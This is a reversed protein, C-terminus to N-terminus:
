GSQYMRASDVVAAIGNKLDPSDEPTQYVPLPTMQYYDWASKQWPAHLLVAEGPVYRDAVLRAALRYNDQSVISSGQAQFVTLLSLAAFAGALVPGVARFKTTIREVTAFAGAICLVVPGAIVLFYRPLFHPVILNAVYSILFSGAIAMVMAPGEFRRARVAQ